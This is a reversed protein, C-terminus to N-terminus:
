NKNKRITKNSTSNRCNDTVKAREYTLNEYEPLKNASFYEKSGNGLLEGNLNILIVHNDKVSLLSDKTEKVNLSRVNAPLSIQDFIQETESDTNTDSDTNEEFLSQENM